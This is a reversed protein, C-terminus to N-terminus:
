LHKKVIVLAQQMPPAPFSGDADMHDALGFVDFIRMEEKDHFHPSEETPCRKEYDFRAIMKILANVADEYTNSECFADDNMQITCPLYRLRM